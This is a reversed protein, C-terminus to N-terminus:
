PSPLRGNLAATRLRKRARIGEPDRGGVGIADVEATGAGAFAVVPDDTDLDFSSGSACLWRFLSAPILICM